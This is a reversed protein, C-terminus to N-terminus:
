GGLRALAAQYNAIQNTLYAPAKGSGSTNQHGGKADSPPNAIYNYASRVASIAKALAARTTAVAKDDALNLADSLGLGFVKDYDKGSSTDNNSIVGATLGLAPLADKGPKGAVVEVDSRDNLPRLRLVTSDGSRAQEVKV